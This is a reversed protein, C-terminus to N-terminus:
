AIKFRGLNLKDFWHNVTAKKLAIENALQQRRLSSLLQQEMQEVTIPTRETTTEPSHKHM